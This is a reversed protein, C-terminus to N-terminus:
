FQFLEKVGYYGVISFSTIFLFKEFKDYRERKFYFFFNGITIFSFVAIRTLTNLEM